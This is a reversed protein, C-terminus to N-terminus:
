YRGLINLYWGKFKYDRQSLDASFDTFNYGIGVRLNKGLEKDLGILYGSKAGDDEVKLWRYEALASWGNWLDAQEGKDTMGKDGMHWRVQAAAYTANNSLWDGTGREVRISSKRKALKGAFEWSPNLEYTAETSFIHSKQDFQTGITNAQSLPAMDYLFNYKALLNLRGQRPRWAFGLSSDLFKADKVEGTGDDTKTLSYNIKGLMRWDDSVKYTLRNTSLWQTQETDALTSATGQSLQDQRHELRSVWTIDADTYGASLSIAQRDTVAGSDTNTVDGKQVTFGTSWGAKPVFELGLSNIQGNSANDKLWQSENVLRWQQGLQWRQGLTWGTQKSFTRAAILSDGATPASTQPVFTYSTYISHQDSRKYEGSATLASGRDGDTYEMAVSSQNDFVYKTGLTYANNDDYNKESFSAQAAAFVDWHPGIKQTVRLGFLSAQADEQGSITQKVQQVEALVSTENSPRWQLGLQARDLQSATQAPNAAGTSLNQAGDQTKVQKYSALLDWQPGLQGTIQVGTDTLDKGLATTSESSFGADRKRWWGSLNWNDQSLGLEKANLHAEVASAKGELSALVNTTNNINAGLQGFSLGGDSSFYVPALDAQSQAHEVKLWTGQGKQLTLDVGKLEYDKGSRAEKAYSAGVAVNEGLWQRGAVGGGVNDSQLGAPYYEYSAVLVNADGGLPTDKIASNNDKAIQALPRLLILRGQFHNMDYDRGPQLTYSSIVRGSDKDRVELNAQMSGPVVDTHRMFYLSGGTGLLETRGPATQPEAVFANVRTKPEGLATTEVSRWALKAGYLNRNYEALQGPEFETNINGWTASSKDWDLRVYLRGSTDVDRTAISDDGYIPYYADPDIRRLVDTRDAKFFNKFLDGVERELTDAQATILYRGQIKGKLYFALRGDTQSGSYTDHDQETVAEIKGSYSNKSLTFDALGVMVWYEGRVQAQLESKLVQGAKTNAQLAFSHQGVPLLYEMVFKRDIDIPVNQGNVNLQLGDPIDQGRLRVRSGRLVINQIALSSNGYIRRSLTYQELSMGAASSSQQIGLDTSNKLADLAQAREVDSVLDLTVPQTEDWRGEADYVRLVYQLQDGERLSLAAANQANAKGDWETTIQNQQASLKIPLVAMPSLRDVDRPGFIRIEGRPTFAAYNSYINFSIREKIAGGAVAARPAANITLNPQLLVPDETLWIRGFEQLPANIAPVLEAKTAPATTPTAATAAPAATQAQSGANLALALLMLATAQAVPKRAARTLNLNHKM